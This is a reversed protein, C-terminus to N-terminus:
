GKKQEFSREDFRKIPLSLPLFILLELLCSFDKEEQEIDWPLLILKRM